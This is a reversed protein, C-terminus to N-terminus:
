SHLEKPYKRILDSIQEETFNPNSWICQWKIDPKTYMSSQYEDREWTQVTNKPREINEGQLDHFFWSNGTVWGDTTLHYHSKYRDAAM